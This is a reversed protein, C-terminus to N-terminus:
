IYQGSVYIWLWSIAVFDAFQLLMALNNLAIPSHTYGFINYGFPMLPVFDSKFIKSTRPLIIKLSLSIM